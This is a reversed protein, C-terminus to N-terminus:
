EYIESRPIVYTHTVERSFLDFLHLCNDHVYLVSHSNLPQIQDVVHHLFRDTKLVKTQSRDLIDVVSYRNPTHLLLLRHPNLFFINQVKKINLEM